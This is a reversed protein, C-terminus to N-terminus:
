RRLSFSISVDGFVTRREDCRYTFVEVLLLFATHYQHYAGFYWAWQQLDGASELEVVTALADTGKTLVILRLRDPIRYTVSNLHNHLIVLYLLSTFLKMVVQAM